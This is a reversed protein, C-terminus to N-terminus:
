TQCTASITYPRWVTVVSVAWKQGPLTTLQRTVVRQSSRRARLTTWPNPQEMPQTINPRTHDLNKLKPPNSQTRDVIAFTSLIQFSKTLANLARNSLIQNCWVTLNNTKNPQTPSPGFKGV